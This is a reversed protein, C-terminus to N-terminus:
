VVNMIDGLVALQVLFSTDFKHMMVDWCVWMDSILSCNKKEWRYCYYYFSQKIYKEKKYSFVKGILKV